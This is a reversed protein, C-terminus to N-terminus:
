GKCRLEKELTYAATDDSFMREFEQQSGRETHRCCPNESWIRLQECHFCASTSVVAAVSATNDDSHQPEKRKQRKCQQNCDAAGSAQKGQAKSVLPREWMIVSGQGTSLHEQTWHLRQPTTADIRTRWSGLTITGDLTRQLLFQQNCMSDYIVQCDKVTLRGLGTAQWVGQLARKDSARLRNLKLAM